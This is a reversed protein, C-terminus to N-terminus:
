KDKENFIEKLIDKLNKIPFVKINKFNNLNKSNQFPIYITKFGLKEAESIRKQIDTVSRIEGNLGVEGVLVTKPKINLNYYSSIIGCCVALDAAPDDIKIGGVMNIFINTNSLKLNIRKELVAILISLKRLDFGTAVRQPNGFNSKITLAQVELLIARSGEMVATVVSGSLNENTESLFIENPNRVELLGKGTMQFVGIENTSGFRNKLSRILRFNFNKDGEFFLVTDVMHELIMPGAIFGDKTVHGILILCFGKKKAENILLSASERIQTVTGPANDLSSVFITQISDIVVLEPQIENIKQIVIEVDTTTLLYIDDSSINTRDARQKIQNSSEEGSVYLVKRKISDAVQMILTSKGIGPDGGILTVSNKMLGGGVVRDFEEINTLLRLEDQIEVDKLKFVTTNQIEIENVKTKKKEIVEETFTNWNNCDPCKGLWKLSEFGCYTCVYKTKIKAM